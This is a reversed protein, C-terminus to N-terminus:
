QIGEEIEKYYLDISGYLRDLFTDHFIRSNPGPFLDYKDILSVKYINNLDAELDLRDISGEKIVIDEIFDTFSVNRTGKFLILSGLKKCVSFRKDESLISAFFWDLFGYEFLSSYFGANKLSAITFFDGDKTVKNVDECFQNIDEITIGVRESLQKLTVIEDEDIYLIQYTNRLRKLM